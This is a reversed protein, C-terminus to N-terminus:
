VCSLPQNIEHKRYQTGHKKTETNESTFFIGKLQRIAQPNFIFNRQAVLEQPQRGYFIDLPQMALFLARTDSFIGEPPEKHWSFFILLKM